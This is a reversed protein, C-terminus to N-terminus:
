KRYRQRKFNFFLHLIGREFSSKFGYKHSYEWDKNVIKFAIDEYPPGAQFRIICTSHDPSEPDREIKYSPAKTKDILDPYFINFKYGKVVKPPPNDHDYHTQNYKTWEFGTHVRNFYKPKRAQYKQHWWEVKRDVRVEQTFVSDNESTEGMVRSSYAALKGSAASTSAAASDRAGRAAQRTAELTKRNIAGVGVATNLKMHEDQQVRARLARIEALDDAEDVVNGEDGDGPDELDEPGPSYERAYVPGAEADDEATAVAHEAEAQDGGQIDDQFDGEHEQFNGLRKSYAYMVKHRALQLKTKQLVRQWYEEDDTTGKDLKESIDAELALLEGVNKGGLVERMDSDLSTHVGGGSSGGEGRGADERRRIGLEHDCLLLVAAWYRSKEEDHADLAAHAKAERELDGLENAELMDLMGSPNQIDTGSTSVANLIDYFVDAPKARGERIRIESRTRAQEAHFGEDRQELEAAEALVREKQLVDLEEQKRALEKEREERRKKVQEIERLREEHKEKVQEASFANETVGDELQKEIKKHWVFAQSLNEDGFPNEEDEYGVVRGTEQLVKAIHDAQEQV